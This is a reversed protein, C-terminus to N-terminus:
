NGPLILIPVEFQSIVQFIDAKIFEEFLGKRQNVLVLMDIHEESFFQPLAKLLSNDHNKSFLVITRWFSSIFKEQQATKTLIVEPNLKWRAVFSDLTEQETEKKQIFWVNKLESFSKVPLTTTTILVPCNAKSSIYSLKDGFLRNSKSKFSVSRSVVFLDYNVSIQNVIKSVPGQSTIQGFKHNGDNPISENYFQVLMKKIGIEYPVDKFSYPRNYSEAPYCHVLHIIGKSDSIIKYALRLAQRSNESFSIPVLIKKM